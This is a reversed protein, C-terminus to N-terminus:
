RLLIGRLYVNWIQKGKKKPSFSYGFLRWQLMISQILGLFVISAAEIDLNPDFENNLIGLSLIKKIQSRYKKMINKLRMIVKKNGSYMDDSFVIRLIGKHKEIFEIHSFFIVELSKSPLSYKRLSQSLIQQLSHEIQTIIADIVEQKSSFHRYVNSNAIEVREAISAITLAKVGNKAIIEFAANVIQARRVETKLKRHKM